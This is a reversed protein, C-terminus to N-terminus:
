STSRCKDETVYAHQVGKMSDDVDTYVTAYFVPRCFGPNVAACIRRVQEATRGNGRKTIQPRAM